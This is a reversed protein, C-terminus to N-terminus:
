TVPRGTGGRARGALELSAIVTFATVLSPFM